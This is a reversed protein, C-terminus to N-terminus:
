ERKKEEEVVIFCIVIIMTMIKDVGSCQGPSTHLSGMKRASDSSSEAFGLGLKRASSDPRATTSPAGSCSCLGGTLRASVRPPRNKPTRRLIKTKENYPHDHTKTTKLAFSVFLLFGGNKNPRPDVLFSMCVKPQQPQNLPNRLYLSQPSVRIRPVQGRQTKPHGNRLCAFLCPYRSLMSTSM